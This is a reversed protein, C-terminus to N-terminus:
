LIFIVTNLVELDSATTMSITAMMMMAKMMMTMM